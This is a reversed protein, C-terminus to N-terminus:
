SHEYAHVCMYDAFFSYYQCFQSFNKKFILWEWWIGLNQSIYFEKMLGEKKWKKSRGM